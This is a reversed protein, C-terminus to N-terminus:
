FSWVLPIGAVIVVALLAQLPLGVRLFDSFRYNGPGYVMLNTQYGLPTWLALSSAVTIGIFLPRPDVAQEQAISLAIPFMLAAAANNTILGTLVMAALVVGALLGMEGYGAAAEVLGHGIVEAAGSEDMARGLGLAAGIVILVEWDIAQRAEGPSLFGLAVFVLAGVLAAVAIHLTGTAALTVVGLLVGLAGFRRLTSVEEREPMPQVPREGGAESTVVFEPSDEFAERFGRATDLMLIDGPRLVVEGLPGHLREGDRRVGTVAANFRELFEAERVTSGVLRSGEKM